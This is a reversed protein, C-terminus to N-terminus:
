VHERRRRRPVAMKWPEDTSARLPQGEGVGREVVHGERIEQAVDVVRRRRQALERADEPRAPTEGRELEADRATREMREPEGVRPETERQEAPEEGRAPAGDTREEAAADLAEIAGMRLPRDFRVPAVRPDRPEGPRRHAE